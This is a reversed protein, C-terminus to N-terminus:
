ACNLHSAVQLVAQRQPAPLDALIALVKFARRRLVDPPGEAQREQPCPEPSANWFLDSPDNHAPAPTAPTAHPTAQKRRQIEARVQGRSLKAAASQEALERQEQPSALQTLEYASDASLRGADVLDLIESPLTLLSLAKSISSKSLQTFHVLQIAKTFGKLRMLALLAEAKRLPKLEPRQLHEILQQALQQGPDLEARTRESCAQCPTKPEGACLAALFVDDLDPNCRTVMFEEEL